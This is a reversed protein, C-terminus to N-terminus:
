RHGLTSPITLANPLWNTTLGMLGHSRGSAFTSSIYASQDETKTEKQASLHRSCPPCLRQLLFRLSKTAPSSCKMCRNSYGTM